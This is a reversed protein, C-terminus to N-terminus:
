RARPVKFKRDLRWADARRVVRALPLVKSDSADPSSTALGLPEFIVECGEEVRAPMTDPEGSTGAVPVSGRFRESFRIGVQIATRAEPLPFKAPVCLHIENGAPDIAVGPGVVVSSGPEGREISVKLGNVVGFGHCHLNHRRQKERHYNQEANFDQETLLRGAFYNTRQLAEACFVAQRLLLGPNRSTNSKKV